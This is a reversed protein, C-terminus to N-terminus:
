PTASLVRLTTNESPSAGAASVCSAAVSPAASATRQNPVSSYYARAELVSQDLFPHPDRTVAGNLRYDFPLNPWAAGDPLPSTNYTADLQAVKNIFPCFISSYTREDAQSQAPHQRTRLRSM